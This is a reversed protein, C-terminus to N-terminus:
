LYKGELSPEASQRDNGQDNMTGDAERELGVQDAKKGNDTESLVRMLDEVTEQDIDVEESAELFAHVQLALANEEGESELSPERSPSPERTESM